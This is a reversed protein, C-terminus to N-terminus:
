YLYQGVSPDRKTLGPDFLGAEKPPPPSLLPMSESTPWVYCGLSSSRRPGLTSSPLARVLDVLRWRARNGAEISFAQRGQRGELVGVGFGQKISTVASLANQIWGWGTRVWIRLRGAGVEGRNSRCLVSLVKLGQRV